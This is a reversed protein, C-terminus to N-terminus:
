LRKIKSNLWALRPTAEGIEWYYGAIKINKNYYHVGKRPRHDEVYKLLLKKEDDSIKLRYKIVACLGTNVGFIFIYDRLIILLQKTSRM